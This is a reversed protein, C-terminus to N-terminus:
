WIYSDQMIRDLTDFYNVVQTSDKEGSLCTDSDTSWSNTWCFAESYVSLPQTSQCCLWSRMFACWSIYMRNNLAITQEWASESCSLHRRDCTVRFLLSYSKVAWASCGGIHLQLATQNNCPQHWRFSSSDWCMRHVSYLRAGHWTVEHLAVYIPLMCTLTYSGAQMKPLIVTIKKCQQQLLVSTSYIGFYSYYCYYHLPHFSWLFLICSQDRKKGTSLFPLVSVGCFVFSVKIVFGVHIHCLSGIKIVLGWSKDSICPPVRKESWWFALPFHNYLATRPLPNM